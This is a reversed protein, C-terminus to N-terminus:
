DKILLFDGIYLAEIHTGLFCKIADEPTEVIPEGAVNFSTNLLVPVGTRECFARILEYYPANLEKTVTQLRGTGDVHIVAPIRDRQGPLVPPVLLMYPSERDIDFWEQTHEALIAPAFPRFEERHKVRANLVDKNAGEMPSMLISRNGLARPGMESRGQFCGIIRNEALLDATQELAGSEIVTFGSFSAIASEIRELDYDPGLYPSISSWTKTRGLIRHWGYLACGLPIGPDSAAPNIFVEDFIGARLLQYNAVSNLAVGGSFCLRSRGTRNRVWRALEILAEECENQVEWAVRARDQMTELPPLDRRLDYSDEVCLESYDLGVGSRRRPIDLFTRRDDGGYPALGMTKGEQLLGFGVAQTVAAYLLGIGIADSKDLLEIGNGDAVYLSQTERDSGRGDVVLVAADDFPSSYYANCAHALHHNVVHIKAPDVDALFVDQRCPTTQQDRRWDTGDVIYDLVILDFDDVHDIGLQDMCARVSLEPFLRSNKERNCREEALNAFRVVGNRESIIAAGTDHWPDKHLGLVNM